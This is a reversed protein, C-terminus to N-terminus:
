HFTHIHLDTECILPTQGLKRTTEALIYYNVSPARSGMSLEQVAMHSRVRNLGVGENWAPRKELQVAKVMHWHKTLCSQVLIGSGLWLVLSSSTMMSVIFLFSSLAFINPNAFTQILSTWILSPGSIWIENLESLYLLGSIVTIAMGMKWIRLIESM